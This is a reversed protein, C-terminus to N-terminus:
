GRARLSELMPGTLSDHGLHDVCQQVLACVARNRLPDPAFRLCRTRFRLLLASLPFQLLATRVREDILILRARHTCAARCYRHVPTRGQRFTRRGPVSGFSDGTFARCRRPAACARISFARGQGRHTASGRGLRPAGGHRRRIPVFVTSLGIGGCERVVDIFMDLTSGPPRVYRLAEAGALLHRYRPREASGQDRQRHRDPRMAHAIGWQAPSNPSCM